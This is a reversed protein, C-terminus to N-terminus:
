IKVFKLRELIRGQHQLHVIYMGPLLDMSGLTHSYTISFM